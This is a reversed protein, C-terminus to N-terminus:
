SAMYPSGYLTLIKTCEVKPPKLCLKLYDEVELERPYGKVKSQEGLVFFENYIDISHQTFLRLITIYALVSHSSLASSTM